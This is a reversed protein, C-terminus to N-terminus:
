ENNIVEGFTVEYQTFWMCKCNFCKAFLESGIRNTHQFKPHGCICMFNHEHKM